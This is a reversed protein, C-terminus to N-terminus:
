AGGGENLPRTFTDSIEGEVLIFQHIGKLKDRLRAALLDKAVDAALQRDTLEDSPEVETVPAHRLM